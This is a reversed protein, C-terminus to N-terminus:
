LFKTRRLLPVASELNIPTLTKIRDDTSNEENEANAQWHFVAVQTVLHIEHAQEQYVAQRKHKYTCAITADITCDSAV